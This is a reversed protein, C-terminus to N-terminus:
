VVVFAELGDRGDNPGYEARTWGKSLAKVNVTKM